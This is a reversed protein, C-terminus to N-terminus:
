DAVPVIASAPGAGAPPAATCSILLLPLTVTGEDTDTCGPWVLTVKVAEVIGTDLVVIAVIVAPEPPFEPEPTRVTLEGHGANRDTPAPVGPAEPTGNVADVVSFPAAGDPPVVTM